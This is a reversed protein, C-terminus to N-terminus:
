AADISPNAASVSYRKEKPNVPADCLGKGKACGSAVAVVAVSCGRPQAEM